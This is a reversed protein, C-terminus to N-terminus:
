RTVPIAGGDSSSILVRAGLPRALRLVAKRAYGVATCITGPPAPAAITKITFAVARRNAVASASYRAHCPGDGPPSGVFSITIATGSPDSRASDGISNGPGTPGLRQLPPPTVVDAPALALVSAPRAVRRFSFQWAPLQRRGRDTLFTALGLHVARVVLPAVNSGRSPGTARLGEYGDAASIVRFRGVKAPRKPLAARLLFRHELYAMKTDGNPFGTSPALVAGEGLPIIPRPRSGAPFESWLALAVRGASKIMGSGDCISSDFPQHRSDTYIKWIEGAQPEIGDEARTLGSNTFTVATKVRVTTPGSGKLYRMVRVRAPSGLM